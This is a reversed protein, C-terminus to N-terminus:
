SFARYFKKALGIAKEKIARKWYHNNKSVYFKETAKWKAEGSTPGIQMEVLLIHSHILTDTVEKKTLKQIISFRIPSFPM